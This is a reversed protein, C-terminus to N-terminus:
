ILDGQDAAKFVKQLAHFVVSSTFKFSTTNRVKGLLREYKCVKVKYNFKYIAHLSHQNLKGFIAM